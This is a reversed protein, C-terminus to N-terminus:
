VQIIIERGGSIPTNLQNFVKNLWDSLHRWGSLAPSRKM